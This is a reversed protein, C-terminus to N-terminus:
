ASRRCCSGRRFRRASSGPTAARSASRSADRGTVSVLSPSAGLAALRSLGAFVAEDVRDASTRLLPSIARREADLLVPDEVASPFVGGEQLGVVFVLPRGDYGADALSSVHLHGPRPRDRAVALSEIRERLFRLGTPVDCRYDGLARLDDLAEAIAISAKADEASARAANADLFAAAGAALASLAVTGDHEDPEPVASLVGAIWARLATTQAAKRANWDRDEESNEDDKARRDYEEALRTLAAGYTRRGLSAQAKLLLRAAQGPSVAQGTGASPSELAAPWCDGSQLMRRLDAAAFNAGVWACFSLLLRGPRTRTAPVGTSLTVPWDLRNARDRILQAYASSACAIEVRDLPQGSAAVRRLVEDM